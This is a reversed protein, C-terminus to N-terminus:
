VEGDPAGVNPVAPGARVAAMEAGTRRTVLWDAPINYM